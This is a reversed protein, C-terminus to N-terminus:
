ILEVNVEYVRIIHTSCVEMLAMFYTWHSYKKNDGKICNTHPPSFYACQGSSSNLNVRCHLM